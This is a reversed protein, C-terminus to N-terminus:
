GWCHVLSGPPGTNTLDRISTGFINSGSQHDQTHWMKLWPNSYSFGLLVQDTELVYKLKGSGIYPVVDDPNSGQELSRVNKKEPLIM